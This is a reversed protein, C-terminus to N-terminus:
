RCFNISLRSVSIGSGNWSHQPRRAFRRARAMNKTLPSHTGNSSRMRRLSISTMGARPAHVHAPPLARATQTNLSSSAQFPAEIRARHLTWPSWTRTHPEFPAEACLAMLIAPTKKLMEKGHKPATVLTIVGELVAEQTRAKDASAAFLVRLAPACANIQKVAHKDLLMEFVSGLLDEAPVAKPM